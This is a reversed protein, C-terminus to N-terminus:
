QHKQSASEVMKHAHTQLNRTNLLAYCIEFEIYQRIPAFGWTHAERIITHTCPLGEPCDRPDGPRATTTLTSPVNEDSTPFCTYGGPLVRLALVGHPRLVGDTM